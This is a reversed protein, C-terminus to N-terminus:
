WYAVLSFFTLIMDTKYTDLNILPQFNRFMHTINFSFQAFKNINEPPQFWIKRFVKEPLIKM